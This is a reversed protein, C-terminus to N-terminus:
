KMHIFQNSGDSISLSGLGPLVLVDVSSLLTFNTASERSSSRREVYSSSELAMPAFVEYSVACSRVETARSQAAWEGHGHEGVCQLHQLSSVERNHTPLKGWAGQLGSMLGGSKSKNGFNFSGIHPHKEKRSSSGVTLVRAIQCIFLLPTKSPIIISGLWQSEACGNEIVLWTWLNLLM